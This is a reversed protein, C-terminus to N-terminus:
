LNNMGRNQEKLREDKIDNIDMENFLNMNREWGQKDYWFNVDGRTMKIKQWYEKSQIAYHNILLPTNTEEFSINKAFSNNNYIHGHIGLKVPADTKIISKHSNYRGNPGNKVSNYEGRYIFNQVVNNPQKEFGSSGFHIWNIQLQNYFEYKKLINAINIEQPSYLFEDLDVIGFWKTESLHKQFFHNYKADQMGVWKKDINCNYLTVLNKDIYPKVIDLFNDNSNDNILYIHEIGHYFYHELWEKLIHAENKFIAGITFYYM